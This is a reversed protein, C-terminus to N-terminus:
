WVVRSEPFYSSPEALFVNAWWSVYECTIHPYSASHPCFSGVQYLSAFPFVAFVRCFSHSYQWIISTMFDHHWTGFSLLTHLNLMELAPRFFSLWPNKLLCLSVHLMCPPDLTLVILNSMWSRNWQRAPKPVLFICSYFGLISMSLM